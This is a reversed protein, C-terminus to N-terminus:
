KRTKKASKKAAKANIKASREERDVALEPFRAEAMPRVFHEFGLHITILIIIGAVGGVFEVLRAPWLFAQVMYIISEGLWRGLLEAAQSAIFNASSTAEMLESATM